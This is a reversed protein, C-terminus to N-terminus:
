EKITFFTDVVEQIYPNESYKKLEERVDHTLDVLKKKTYEFSGYEELLKVCYKKLENDKTRQRLIEQTKNLFYKM